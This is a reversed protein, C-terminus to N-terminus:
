HPTSLAPPNPLRARKKRLLLALSTSALLSLSPEPIIIPAVTFSFQYTSAYGTENIWFAYSGPELSSAYDYPPGTTLFRLIERGEAWTGFGVYGIPDAFDNSPPASLIAGPQSLLFSVNGTNEADTAYSLLKISNLNMGAAVTLTFLDLDGDAITGKLTSTGVGPSLQTPLLYEDSLDGNVAEDYSFVAANGISTLALLAAILNKTLSM